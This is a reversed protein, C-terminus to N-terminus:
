LSKNKEISESEMLVQTVEKEFNALYVLHEELLKVGKNLILPNDDNQLTMLFLDRFSNGFIESLQNIFSLM